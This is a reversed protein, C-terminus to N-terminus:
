CAGMDTAKSADQGAQNAPDQGRVPQAQIGDSPISM